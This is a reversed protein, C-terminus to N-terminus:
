HALLYYTARPHWGGGGELGNSIYGRLDITSLLIGFM